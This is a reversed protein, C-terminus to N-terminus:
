QAGSTTRRASLEEILLDLERSPDGGFGSRMDFAEHHVRRAGARHAAASMTRVLATPGCMAVYAGKLGGDGFQDILTAAAM